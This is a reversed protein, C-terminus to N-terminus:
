LCQAPPIPTRGTCRALARCRAYGFCTICQSRFEILIGVPQVLAALRHRLGPSRGAAGGLRPLPAQPLRLGAALPVPLAAAFAIPEVGALEGAVRRPATARRVAALALRLDVRRLADAPLTALLNVDGALRLAHRNLFALQGLVRGALGPHGVALDESIVRL